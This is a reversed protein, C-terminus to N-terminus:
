IVLGTYYLIFSAGILIIDISYALVPSMKLCLGRLKKFPYNFIDLSLVLTLVVAFTLVFIKWMPDGFTKFFAYLGFFNLLKILPNHWFYVSLTNEGMHSIVPIRINPILSILGLILLSSTIYAALRHWIFCNPIDDTLLEYANRGTYLSIYKSVGIRFCIIFYAIFFLIAPIKVFLKSTFKMLKEPTLYYGALFFPLFVFFRSLYLFDHQKQVVHNIGAFNVLGILCGLVVSVPITIYPKVNRFIFVTLLMFAMVFMFWEISSSGLLGWKAKSNCIINIIMRYSKLLFGMIIFFTFKGINFKDDKKLRKTFLGSIFIFLPMHFAYIFTFLCLFLDSDGNDRAPVEIAHGVVVLLIAVFKINDFKYIRKRLTNGM